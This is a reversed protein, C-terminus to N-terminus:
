LCCNTKRKEMWEPVNVKMFVAPAKVGPHTKVNGVSIFGIKRYLFEHSPNIAICLYEIGNDVSYKRIGSMLDWVESIVASAAGFSAIKGVEAIKKGQARLADTESRYISDLPLGKPSDGFVSVTSSVKDNRTSVYITVRNKHMLNKVLELYSFAYRSRKYTKRVLWLCSLTKLRRAQQVSKEGNNALLSNGAIIDTVFNTISGM